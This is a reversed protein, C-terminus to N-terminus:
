KIEGAEKLAQECERFLVFNPIQAFQAKNKLTKLFSVLKKHSNIAKALFEAQQETLDCFLLEGEKDKVLWLQTSTSYYVETPIKYPCEM